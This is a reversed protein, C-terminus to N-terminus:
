LFDNINETRVQTVCFGTPQRLGLNRLLLLIEFDQWGSGAQSQHTTAVLFCM